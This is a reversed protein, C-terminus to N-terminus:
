LTPVVSPVAGPRMPGRTRLIWATAALTLLLALAVGARWWTRREVVLASTSLVVTGALWAIPPRNVGAGTVLALVGGGVLVVLVWRALVARAPTAGNRLVRLMVMALLLALVPGAVLAEAVLFAAARELASAGARWGPDPLGDADLWHWGSRARWWLVPAAIGFSIALAIGQARGVLQARMAQSGVVALVLGLPLLLASWDALTGVGALAGCAVWWRADDTQIARVLAFLACAVAAHLLPMPTATSFVDMFLPLAAAMWAARRGADADDISTATRVLAAGAVLGCLVAVARPGQPVDGGDNALSPVRLGAALRVLSAVGLVIWSGRDIM